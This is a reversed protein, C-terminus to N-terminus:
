SNPVNGGRTVNGVQDSGSRMRTQGSPNERNNIDVGMLNTKEQSEKRINEHYEKEAQNVGDNGESNGELVL